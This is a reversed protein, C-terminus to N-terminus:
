KESAGVQEGAAVQDRRETAIGNMMPAANKVGTEQKSDTRAQGDQGVSMEGACVEFRLTASPGLVATACSMLAPRFKRQLWNLLFLSGVEILLEEGAVTFRTKQYFWHDYRRQGITKVLESLVEDEVSKVPPVPEMLKPQM